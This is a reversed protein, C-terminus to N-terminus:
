KPSICLELTLVESLTRLLFECRHVLDSKFAMHSDDSFNYGM